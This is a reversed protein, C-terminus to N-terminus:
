DKNEASGSPAASAGTSRREVAKSAAARVAPSPDSQLKEIAAWLDANSLRASADIAAALLDNVRQKPMPYRSVVQGAGDRVEYRDSKEWFPRDLMDLLVTKGSPDGLFALAVAASWTLEGEGVLLLNRLVDLVAEDRIGLAALATCAVMQTEVRSSSRAAEIMAPLASSINPLSRLEGLQRLAAAVYPERRSEVVKILPAVAEAAETRGLAAILFELRRSRIEQQNAREAGLTPLHEVRELDTLVMRGIREATSRLEPATVEAEKKALREALELAMQWLEKERPLLVGLSKEGSGAELAQVIEDISRKEPATSGGFLVVVLVAGGVITGIILLPVGFLKGMLSLSIPPVDYPGAPEPQNTSSPDAHSQALPRNTEGDSDISRSNPTKM